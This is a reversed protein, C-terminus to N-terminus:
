TMEWLTPLEHVEAPLGYEKIYREVRKTPKMSYVVMRECANRWRIVVTQGAARLEAANFHTPHPKHERHWASRYRSLAMGDDVLLLTLQSGILVGHEGMPAPNLGVRHLKRPPVLRVPDNACGRLAMVAANRHCLHQLARVGPRHRSGTYAIRRKGAWGLVYIFPKFSGIRDVFRDKTMDPMAEALRASDLGTLTALQERTLAQYLELAELVLDVQELTVRRM